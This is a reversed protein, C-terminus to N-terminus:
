TMRRLDMEALADGLISADALLPSDRHWVRRETTRRLATTSNVFRRDYVAYLRRFMRNYDLLSGPPPYDASLTAERHGAGYEILTLACAEYRSPADLIDDRESLRALADHYRWVETAPEGNRPGHDGHDSHGGVTDPLAAPVLDQTQTTGLVHWFGYVLAPYIMHVNVCAGAIRELGCTIEPVRGHTVAVDEMGELSLALVPGIAPITVTVDLRAAKLAGLLTRRGPKAADPDHSLFSGHRNRGVTIPPRPRIWYPDFGGEIVLRSAVYWRLSDALDASRASPITPFRIGPTPPSM